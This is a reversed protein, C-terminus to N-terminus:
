LHVCRLQYFLDIYNTGAGILDAKNDVGDVFYRLLSIQQRQVCRNFCSSSTLVAAAKCYNGILYSFKSLLGM